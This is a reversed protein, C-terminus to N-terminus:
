VPGSGRAKTGSSARWSEQLSFVRHGLKIHLGGHTRRRVLQEHLDGVIGVGRLEVARQGIVGRAVAQHIREGAGELCQLKGGAHAPQPGHHRAGRHGAARAHGAGREFEVGHLGGEVDARQDAPEVEIVGPQGRLPAMRGVVETGDQGHAIVQRTAGHEFAARRGGHAVQEGGQDLRVLDLAHQRELVGEVAAAEVVHQQYADGRGGDGGRHEATAAVLDDVCEGVGEDIAGGQASIAVRRLGARALAPGRTVGGAAGYAMCEHGQLIFGPIRCREGRGGPTEMVDHQTALGDLDRPGEAAVDHLVHEELNGIRGLEVRLGGDFSRDRQVRLHGPADIVDLADDDLRLLRAHADDVLGARQGVRGIAVVAELVHHGHRQQEAPEGGGVVFVVDGGIRADIRQTGAHLDALVRLERLFVVVRLMAVDAVRQLHEETVAAARRAHLHVEGDAM